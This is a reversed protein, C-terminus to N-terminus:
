YKICPPPMSPTAPSPITVIYVQQVEGLRLPPRSRFPSRAGSLEWSKVVPSNGAVGRRANECPSLADQNSPAEPAINQRLCIAKSLQCCVGNNRSIKRSHQACRSSTLVFLALCWQVPCLVAV